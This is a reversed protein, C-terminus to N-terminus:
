FIFPIIKKTKKRYDEYESFKQRLWEEERNAKANLFLGLCYSLGISVINMRFISIGIGGLIVGLYLPHRIFRYIGVIVLPARKAPYPFPTLGEGLNKAGLLIFLIAM